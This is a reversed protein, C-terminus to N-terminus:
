KKAKSTPKKETKQKKLEPIQNPLRYIISQSIKTWLIKEARRTKPPEIGLLELLSFRYIDFASKVFDGWGIAASTARWLFALNILLYILLPILINLATIFWGPAIGWKTFIVCWVEFLFILSMVGLNVWWDVQAKADDILERYDKPVVSLIRPWGDISELGYMVRPYVEFARLANGFATPLILEEKDPYSEVLEKMLEMRELRFETALNAYHTDLWKLRQSKRAFERQARGKFLKLPNYKGYGELVRYIERNLVLLLIGIIWSAFVALTADFITNGTAMSRIKIWYGTAKLLWSSAVMFLSVPLFYAIAFNRDFLKPLESFM